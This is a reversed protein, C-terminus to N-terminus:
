DGTLHYIGVLEFFRLNKTFQEHTQGPDPARGWIEAARRNYQLITGRADCIFTAIPLMDLIGDSTRLMASLAAPIPRPGPRGTNNSDLM